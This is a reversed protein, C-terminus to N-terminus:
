SKAQSPEPSGLDARAALDALVVEHQSESAAVLALLSGLEASEAAAAAGARQDAAAAELRALWRLTSQPTRDLPLASIQPPEHSIVAQVHSRHAAAFTALEAELVPHAAIAAAYAALLDVESQAVGSRLAEDAGFTPSQASSDV